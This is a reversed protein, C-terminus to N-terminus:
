PYDNIIIAVILKSIIKIGGNNHKKKVDETSQQSQVQSTSLNFQGLHSFDDFLQQSSNDFVYEKVDRKKSVVSLVSMMQRNMEIAKNKQRNAMIREREMHSSVPVQYEVPASEVEALHAEYSTSIATAMIVIVITIIKLIFLHAQFM